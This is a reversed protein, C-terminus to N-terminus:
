YNWRRRPHDPNHSKTFPMPLHGFVQQFLAPNARIKSTTIGQYKSRVPNMPRSRGPQSHTYPTPNRIGYAHPPTQTTNPMTSLTQMHNANAHRKLEEMTFYKNNANSNNSNSNSNPYVPSQTFNFNMTNRFRKTNNPLNLSNLSNPSNLGNPINMNNFTNRM